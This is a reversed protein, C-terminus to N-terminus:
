TKLDISRKEKFFIGVQSTEEYLALASTHPTEQSQKEHGTLCPTGTFM